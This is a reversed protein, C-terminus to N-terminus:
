ETKVNGSKILATLEAVQRQLDFLMKDKEANAKIEPNLEQMAEEYAKVLKQHKEISELVSKSNNLMASVYSNLAEKNEAIVFANDGFNAVSGNPVGKFERREGSISAVIDVVMELGPNFSNYKPMPVSVREGTGSSVKPNGKLDLLYIVSNQTLNSFM